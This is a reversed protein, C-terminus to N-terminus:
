KSATRRRFSVLYAASRFAIMPDQPEIGAPLGTPNFLLEAAKAEGNPVVSKIELTGLEVKRRSEPWTISPNNLDDGQEAIELMLKFTVPSHALRAGIEDFLYNPGQSAIQEKAPSQDGAAPRIQYRGYTVTDEANTFKFTNVGFFSITAFSVPPPPLAEFFKKANPHSGFFNDLPTPKQANPGSAALAQVLEYFEDVTATPFGNASHGIIDTESGDALQMRIAMGRPTAGPDTDPINAIGAFDSVRITAAVRSEPQLHPAKCVLAAAECAKFSGELVIGKAHVARVGPTQKGFVANLGDVIQEPTAM